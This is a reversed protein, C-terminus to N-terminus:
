SRKMYVGAEGATPSSVEEVVSLIFALASVLRGSWGKLMDVGVSARARGRQWGLIDNGRRFTSPLTKTQSLITLSCLSSNPTLSNTLPLSRALLRRIGMHLAKGQAM